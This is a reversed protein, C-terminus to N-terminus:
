SLSFDQNLAGRYHRVGSHLPGLSDQEKTDINNNEIWEFADDHLIFIDVSSWSQGSRICLAKIMRRPIFALSQRVRCHRLDVFISLSYNQFDLLMGCDRHLHNSHFIWVVRQCEHRLGFMGIVYKQRFWLITMLNNYSASHVITAVRLLNISEFNSTVIEHDRPLQYGVCIVFTEQLTLM